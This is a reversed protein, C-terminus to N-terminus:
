THSWHQGSKIRAIQSKGVGFREALKRYSDTSERIVAVERETIKCNPNTTGKPSIPRHRGKSMMDAVNDAHSGLFLHDPNVCSPNDCEHCVLLGDPIPGKTQGYSFRHALINGRGHGKFLGYGKPLKAGTWLWCSNTKDVKTWFRQEINM